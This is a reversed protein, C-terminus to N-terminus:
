NQPLSIVTCKGSGKSTNTTSIEVTIVQPLINKELVTSPCFNLIEFYIIWKISEFTLLNRRQINKPCGSLTKTPSLLLNTSEVLALEM